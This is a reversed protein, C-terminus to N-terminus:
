TGGKPTRPAEGTSTLLLRTTDVRDTAAHIKAEARREIRRVREGSLGLRRGITRLSDGQARSELVERERATLRLLLPAAQRGAVHDLVSEFEDEALPDVVMDMGEDDVGNGDRDFACLSFAFTLAVAAIVAAFTAM